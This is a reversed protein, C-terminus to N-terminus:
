GLDVTQNPSAGLMGLLNNIPRPSLNDVTVLPCNTAIYDRTTRATALTTTYGSALHKLFTRQQQAAATKIEGEAKPYKGKLTRLAEEDFEEICWVSPLIKIIRYVDSPAIGQRMPRAAEIHAQLALECAVIVMACKQFYTPQHYAAARFQPEGCENWSTGSNPMMHWTTEKAVISAAAKGFKSIKKWDDIWANLMFQRLGDVYFSRMQGHDQEWGHYSIGTGNTSVPHVLLDAYHKPRIQEDPQQPPLGM